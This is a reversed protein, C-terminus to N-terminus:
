KKRFPLNGFPKKERVLEYMFVGESPPRPRFRPYENQFIMNLKRNYAFYAGTFGSKGGEGDISFSVGLREGDDLDTAHFAIVCSEGSDPYEVSLTLMIRVVEGTMTYKVSEIMNTERGISNFTIQPFVIGAEPFDLGAPNNTIIGSYFVNGADKYVGKAIRSIFYTDEAAGRWPIMFTPAAIQRKKEGAGRTGAGFKEFQVFVRHIHADRTDAEFVGDGSAHPNKDEWRIQARKAQAGFFAPAATNWDTRPTYSWYTFIPDDAYRRGTHPNFSRSWDRLNRIIIFELRPDYPAFAFLARPDPAARVAAVWAEATAPDDIISVDAPTPARATAPNWLEAWVGFKKAACDALFLHWMNIEDPQPHVSISASAAPVADLKVM